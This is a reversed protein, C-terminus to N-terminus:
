LSSATEVGRSLDIVAQCIKFKDMHYGPCSKETQIEHHYVVTEASIGCGYKLELDAILKCMNIHQELTEPEAAFGELAIGITYLNPNVGDIISKWTPAVVVGTHWATNDPDVLNIVRGDKAIIFHYSKQTKPDQLYEITGQLEGEPKHIVYASVKRGERGGEFNPCEVSQIYQTLPYM